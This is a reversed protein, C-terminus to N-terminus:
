KTQWLSQLYGLIKDNTDFDNWRGRNQNIMAQLVTRTLGITTKGDTIFIVGNTEGAKVIINDCLKIEKKKKM